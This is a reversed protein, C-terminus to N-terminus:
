LLQKCKFLICLSYQAQLTKLSTKQCKFIYFGICVDMEKKNYKLIYKQM